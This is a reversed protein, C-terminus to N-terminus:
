LHVRVLMLEEGLLQVAIHVAVLSSGARNGEGAEVYTLVTPCVSPFAGQQPGYNTDEVEVASVAPEEVAM